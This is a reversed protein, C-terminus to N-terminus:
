HAKGLPDLVTYLLLRLKSMLLISSRAKGSLKAGEPTTGAYLQSLAGYPAPWLLM